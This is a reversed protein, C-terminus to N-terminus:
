VVVELVGKLLDVVVGNMNVGNKNKELVENLQGTDINLGIRKLGQPYLKNRSGM